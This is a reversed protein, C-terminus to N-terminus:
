KEPAQGPDNPQAAKAARGKRKPKVDSSAFPNDDGAEGDAAAKADDPVTEYVSEKWASVPVDEGGKFDAKDAVEYPHTGKGEQWEVEGQMAARDTPSVDEGGERHETHELAELSAEMAKAYAETTLGKMELVQEQSLVNFGDQALLHADTAHDPAYAVVDAAMFKNWDDESAESLLSNKHEDGDQLSDLFDPHLQDSTVVDGKSVATHEVEQRTLGGPVAVERVLRPLATDKEVKYYKKEAAM